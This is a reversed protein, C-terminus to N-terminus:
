FVVGIRGRGTIILPVATDLELALELHEGLLLAQVGVHAIAGWWPDPNDAIVEDDGILFITSVDAVGMGAFPRVVGVDAISVTFAAGIEASMSQAFFLDDVAPSGEIFPSAIEARAKTSLFHGRVGLDLGFPSRWATAAEVGVAAITGLPTAVPPTLTGGILAGISGAGEPLLLDPTTAWVRPRPVVPLKDTDETKTHDLVFRRECPLGPVVAAELAFGAHGAPAPLIATGPQLLFSSASYNALFAQQADEDYNAPKPVDQCAADIQARAACCAFVVVVVVVRSM